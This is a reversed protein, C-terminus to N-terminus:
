ILIAKINSKPLCKSNPNKNGKILCIKYLIDISTVVIASESVFNYLSDGNRLIFLFM